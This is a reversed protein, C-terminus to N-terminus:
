AAGAKAGRQKQIAASAADFSVGEKTAYRAIELSDDNAKQGAPHAEAPPVYLPGRVSHNKAYNKRVRIMHANFQEDTLSATDKLEEAEDFIYGEAGLKAYAAKRTESRATAAIADLAAQHDKQQRELTAIKQDRDALERAYRAAEGGKAYPEKTPDAPPTAPKNPDAGPDGMKAPDAGPAPAAPKAPDAPEAKLAAVLSQTLMDALQKMEDPTMYREKAPQRPANVGPTFSNMPGCHVADYKAVSIGGPGKHLKDPLGLDLRPTVAGLAACPDFYREGMNQHLWVEVSRRPKDRLEQTREAKHFEDCVIAYRPRVNGIKALRFNGQYGLIPPAKAGAAMEEPTPTHGDVIPVYDGTDAIRMNCRDVIAQLADRDYQDVKGGAAPMHHEAFVVHDPSLEFEGKAFKQAAKQDPHAQRWAALCAKSRADTDGEVLAFCRDFHQPQSEGPLPALNM